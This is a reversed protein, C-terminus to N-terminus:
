TINLDLLYYKTLLRKNLENEIIKLIFRLKQGYLIVIIKM